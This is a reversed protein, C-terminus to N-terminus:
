AGTIEGVSVVYEATECDEQMLDCQCCKSLYLDHRKEFHLIREGEKLETKSGLETSRRLSGVSLNVANHVLRFFM